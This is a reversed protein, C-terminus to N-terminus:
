LISQKTSVAYPLGTAVSACQNYNFLLFYNSFLFTFLTIDIFTKVNKLKM